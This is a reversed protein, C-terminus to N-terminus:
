GLKQERGDICISFLKIRSQLVSVVGTLSILHKFAMFSSAKENESYGTISM